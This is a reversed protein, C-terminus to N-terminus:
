PACRAGSKRVVGTAHRDVASRPPAMPVPGLNLLPCFFVRGQFACKVIPDGMRSFGDPATVPLRDNDGKQLVM